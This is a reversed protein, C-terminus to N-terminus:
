ALTLLGGAGAAVSIAGHYGVLVIAEYAQTATTANADYVLLTDVNTAPTNADVAATYAGGVFNTGNYTGSIVTVTNDALTAGSDTAVTVATTAIANVLVQNAASGAATGTYAALAIVDGTKVNNVVDFDTTSVSNTTTTGQTFTGSDGTATQIVRDAVSDAGLNITDAGAGGVILDKGATGVITEASGTGFVSNDYIVPTGIFDNGDVNSKAVGALRISNGASLTILTDTGSATIAVPTNAPLNIKDTTGGFDVIIDAGDTLGFIFEDNETGGVLIDNGAGGNITDSGAGGSIYDNGNGGNIADSGAGGYLADRDAGGDLLDDGAYGFLNDGNAGAILHDIQATGYLTAKGTNPDSAKNNFQLSSGDAFKIINGDLIITNTITIGLSLAVSGDSDKVSVGQADLATLTFGTTSVPTVVISKANASAIEIPEDGAVFAITDSTGGGYVTGNAPAFDFANPANDDGGVQIQIVKPIAVGTNPASVVDVVEVTLIDDPAGHTAKTYSLTALQANLQELTVNTLTITDNASVAAVSDTAGTATLYSTVAAIDITGNIVSLTVTVNDGNADDVSIIPDVLAIGETVGDYLFDFTGDADAIVANDAVTIVPADNVITFTVDAAQTSELQGDWATVTFSADPTSDAALGTQPTWVLVDTATIETDAEVVEAGAKYWKGDSYQTVGAPIPTGAAIANTIATLEGGTVEVGYKLVGMIPTVDTITATTTPTSGGITKTAVFAGGTVKSTLVVNNSGDVTAIVIAASNGNIAAALATAEGNATPSGAVTRIITSADSTIGGITVTDAAQLNGLAITSVQHDQLANVKFTIQNAATDTGTLTADIVNDVDTLNAGAKTLLDKLTLPYAANAHANDFTSIASANALTPADNIDLVNAKVAIEDATGSTSGSIDVLSILSGIATAPAASFATIAGTTADAIDGTVGDTDLSNAGAAPIWRLNLDSANSIKTVAGGSVAKQSIGDKTLWVTNTSSFDTIETWDSPTTGAGSKYYLKGAGATIQFAQISTLSTDSTADKVAQLKLQAFSIDKATDELVGTITKFSNLVTAM